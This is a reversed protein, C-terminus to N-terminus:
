HTKLYKEEFCASCKHSIFTLIAYIYIYIYIYECFIIFRPFEVRKVSVCYVESKSWDSSKHRRFTKRGSTENEALLCDTQGSDKNGSKKRFVLSGERRKIITTGLM